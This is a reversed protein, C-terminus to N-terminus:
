ELTGIGNDDDFALSVNRKRLVVSSHPCVVDIEADIGDSSDTPETIRFWDTEDCDIVRLEFENKIYDARWNNEGNVRLPITFRIEKWGNMERVRHIGHAAGPQEVDSDYLNCVKRGRGITFVDLIVHNGYGM